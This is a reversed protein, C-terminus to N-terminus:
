NPSHVDTQHKQGIFGNHGISGHNGKSRNFMMPCTWQIWQVDHGNFNHGKSMIDMPFLTWQIWQTWQTWQDDHGNSGNHGNSMTDM